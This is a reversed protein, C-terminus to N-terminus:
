AAASRRRPVNARKRAQNFWGDRAPSNAWPEEARMEFRGGIDPYSPMPTPEDASYIPALGLADRLADVFHRHWEPSKGRM